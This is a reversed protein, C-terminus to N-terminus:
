LETCYPSWEGEDAEGDLAPRRCELLEAGDSDVPLPGVQVGKTLEPRARHYTGGNRIRVAAQRCKAAIFVHAYGRFAGFPDGGPPVRRRDFAKTRVCLELYAVAELEYEDQSGRVFRYDARVGRAIARAWKVHSPDVVLRAPKRARVSPACATM